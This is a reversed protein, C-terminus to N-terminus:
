VDLNTMISATASFQKKKEFMPSNVVTPVYGIGCSGFLIGFLIVIFFMVSFKKM